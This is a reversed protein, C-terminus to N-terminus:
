RTLSLTNVVRVLEAKYEKWQAITATATALYVKGNRFKAISYFHLKKGSYDGLYELIYVGNEVKSVLSTYSANKLQSDTLDKYGAPSGSYTQIMVNINPAFSETAPLYLSVVTQTEPAATQNFTGISFGLGPFDAKGGGSQASILVPLAMLLFAIKRPM